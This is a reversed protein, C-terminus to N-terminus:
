IDYLDFSVLCPEPYEAIAIMKTDHHVCFYQCAIDLKFQKVVEGDWNYVFLNDGDERKNLSFYDNITKGSFLLYVYKDTAYAHIYGVMNDKSMPAGFGGNEEETIYQPYIKEIRKIVEINDKQITYFHLIDGKSCAYVCKTMSPNSILCGQYAMARLHNKIKGEEKNKYPYEFFSNIKRGLSDYLTFMSEEYAGIGLYQNNNTKIIRFTRSEFLVNNTKKVEYRELPFRIEDFRKTFLDYIGITTDSTCQLSSPHLFEDPGQGRNGFRFFSSKKNDWTYFCTDFLFEIGVTQDQFSLMPGGRGIIDNGINIMHHNIYSINEEIPRTNKCGSIITILSFVLITIRKNM